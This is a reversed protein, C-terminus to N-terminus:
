TTRAAPRRSFMSSMPLTTTAVRPPMGTRILSMASTRMPRSRRVPEPLSSPRSTTTPVASISIPSFLRVTAAATSALISWIRLLRGGPTSTWVTRSRVRRTSAVTFVTALFRDSPAVRTMTMRNRSSPLMRAAIMVASTIGTAMSIVMVPMTSAFIEALRILRPARSKPSITSPATIM